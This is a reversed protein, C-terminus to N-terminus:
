VDFRKQREAATLATAAPKEALRATACQPGPTSPISVDTASARATRKRIGVFEAQRGRQRRTARAQNQSDKVLEEQSTRRRLFTTENPTFGASRQLQIV